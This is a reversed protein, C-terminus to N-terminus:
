GRGLNCRAAASRQNARAGRPGSLSSASGDGDRALEETVLEGGDKKKREVLFMRAADSEALRADGHACEILFPAGIGLGIEWAIGELKQKNERRAARNGRRPM